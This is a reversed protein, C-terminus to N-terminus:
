PSTYSLSTFSEFMTGTPETCHDNVTIPDSGTACEARVRDAYDKWTMCHEHGTPGCGPPILDSSFTVDPYNGVEHLRPAELCAAGAASWDTEASGSGAGSTGRVHTIYMGAMTRPVNCYTGTMMRLAAYQTPAGDTPLTIAEVTLKALSNGVCALNFFGDSSAIPQVMNSYLPGPLAIVYDWHDPPPPPTWGPRTVKYEGINPGLGIEGRVQGARTSDCVSLDATSPPSGPISAVIRYAEKTALGAPITIVDKITLTVHGSETRAVFSAGVLDSGACTGGSPNKIVLTGTAASYEVSGNPCKVPKGANGPDIRIHEPNCTGIGAPDLGNIPFSNVIPSNGPCPPTCGGDVYATVEGQGNSGSHKYKLQHAVKASDKESGCM